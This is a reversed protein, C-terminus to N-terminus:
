VKQIGDDATAATENLVRDADGNGSIEASWIPVPTSEFQLVAPIRQLTITPEEPGGGFQGEVRSLL